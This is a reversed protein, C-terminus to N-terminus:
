EGTETTVVAHLPTRPHHLRRGGIRRRSSQDGREDVLAPPEEKKHCWCDCSGGDELLVCTDKGGCFATHKLKEHCSCPCCPTQCDPGYCRREDGDCEVPIRQERKELDEKFKNCKHCLGTRESFEHECEEAQEDKELEEASPPEPRKFPVALEKLRPLNFTYETTSKRGKKFKTVIGSALVEKMANSMTQKSGFKCWHMLCKWSPRCKLTKNDASSALVMALLRASPSTIESCERVLNELSYSM